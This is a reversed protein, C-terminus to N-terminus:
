NQEKFPLDNGVSAGGVWYRFADVNYKEILEDAWVANGKSKHMGKGKPDLVYTGIMVDKWPIRNFLLHSKLITYFAWTRIIDHSQPRLTMPSIKKYQEPKELWKCAVEPSNSSTMWTDFVDTDPKVLKKCKPCTKKIEMPDIPLDKENPFITENCEECYWVPIPVGYYRQRSIIWDWKLNETWNEFRARMFKPFWSIERGRQILEKKYKLTQIFWQKALIYEVPTNCRWCSGVTQQLPEQKELMGEKDLERM